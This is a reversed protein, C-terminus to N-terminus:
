SIILSEQELKIKKEVMVKLVPHFVEYDKDGLLKKLEEIYGEDTIEIAKDINKELTEKDMRYPILCPFIEKISNFIRFGGLDIDGWHYVKLSFSNTKLLTLFRVKQPSHFGGHFFVFEDLGSNRIYNYYNAKNEICIMTAVNLDAKEIHEVTMSNIYAGWFFSSFDFSDGNSLNIKMRGKFELVEPYRVLNFQALIQDDKDEKFKGSAKIIKLVPSQYVNEFTKSNGFEKASFVRLTEEKKNNIVACLADLVDKNAVNDDTKFYSVSIKRSKEMKAREESLFEKIEKKEIRDEANKILSCLENIYSSLEIRKSIEYAKKIKEKETNLWIKDVLNGDENKCWSFDILGISKLSHLAELFDNKEKLSSYFQSSSILIRRKSEGGKFAKSKEWKALLANLIEESKNM